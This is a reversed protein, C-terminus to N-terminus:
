TPVKKIRLEKNANESELLQVQVERAHCEVLLRRRRKLALPQPQQLAGHLNDQVWRGGGGARHAGGGRRLTSHGGFEDTPSEFAECDSSQGAEEQHEVDGITKVLVSKDRIDSDM